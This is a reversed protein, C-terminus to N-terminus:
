WFDFPRRQVHMVSKQVSRQRKQQVVVVHFKVFKRTLVRKISSIDCTGLFVQERQKHEQESKKKWHRENEGQQDSANRM